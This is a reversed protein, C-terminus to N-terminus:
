VRICIRLGERLATYVLMEFAKEVMARTSPACESQRPTELTIRPAPIPVCAFIRGRVGALVTSLGPM